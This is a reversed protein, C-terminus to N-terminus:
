KLIILKQTAFLVNNKYVYCLYLGNQLSSIDLLNNTNLNNKRVIQAGTLSIISIEAIDTALLPIDLHLETQAPNPYIKINEKEVEDETGVTCPQAAKGLRFNPFNPMTTYNIGALKFGHQEVNCAKGKKDPEHIVHLYKSSSPISIYIKGDPALQELYFSTSVGVYPDIFGDYIAVTDITSFVDDKTLDLQYIKQFSSIYAYKSNPSIAIGGAYTTDNNIQLYKQNSLVGNCRDFDFLSLETQFISHINLRAYKTGDPSFVAQGGGGDKGGESFAIKKSIKIGNADLLLINLIKNNFDAVIIWWDKGNAHRCATIKGIDVFKNGIIVKNKEIVEGKGNNKSMDILTYYLKEGKYDNPVNVADFITSSHILYYLDTNEPKPLILSGQPLIYGYKAEKDAEKGPNLGKGNLMPQHTADAIYIGNTYFLLKGTTDSIIAIDDRLFMDMTQRKAKTPKIAFNIISNDYSSDIKGNAGLPQSYGLLWINDRKTDNIQADADAYVFLFIFLLIKKMTFIFIACVAIAIQALSKIFLLSNSLKKKEWCM